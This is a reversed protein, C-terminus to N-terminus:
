LKKRLAQIARIQAVARALEKAALSYEFDAQREAMAREAKEKAAAVAVEDLDAARTATDALITVVDPQAELVGGSVYYVEEKNQPQKVRIVGPKLTTLLPAHGPAIGVEGLTGTAIVMEALGSYLSQEASVIDCHMTIAM